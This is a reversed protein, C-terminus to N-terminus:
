TIGKMTLDFEMSFGDKTRKKIYRDVRINEWFPSAALNEVFEALVVEPPTSNSTVVGSIHLNENETGAQFDMSTLRVAPPTVHSLEKLNLSLYSPVEKAKDIYAQNSAIERKIRSYEVFASTTKFAEVEKQLNAQQTRVTSSMSADSLWFTGLLGALVVLSAVGLRNVSHIRHLEKRQPPLLDPLTASSTVAATVALCVPITDNFQSENNDKLSPHEIPFRVFSFGFRDSLREILEESYALDGHVLINNSFQSSQQGSYYDLSNQIETALSEAFYEFMTTDSRNTLFSSGTSGLHSFELRCGHYYAIECRDRKIDIMAYSADPNYNDLFNLMQGTVYQNHYLHAVELGLEDFLALQELVLRKTSAIVSIKLHKKSDTTIRQVPRYDFLCDDHPFPLQRIAEYGVASRLDSRKMDPLSINRMATDPGDLILSIETRNSGFEEFYINIANAAFSRRETLDELTSPIHIKRVDLLRSRFGNSTSAAMQISTDNISFAVRRGICIRKGPSLAEIKVKPAANEQVPKEAEPSKSEKTWLKLGIM